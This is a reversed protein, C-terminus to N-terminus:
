AITVVQDDGLLAAVADPMTGVEGVELTDKLGLFDLCTGCVKITVGNEAMLKLSDLSESGTCALRVGGNMLMVCEPSQEARALSYIFNKMLIRGLEESGSGVSDTAVLVRKAM